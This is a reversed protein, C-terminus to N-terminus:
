HSEVIDLVGQLGVLVSQRRIQERDGLFLERRLVTDAGTMAWGLCVTGVPKDPSGGDPGAVGSIALSVQAHSNRLAGEAMAQVAQESVAGYELLVDSSVGLMERKADNSYTVFGREFWISSGAISTLAQAAWGGTCSEAVALMAQRQQLCQGVRIALASLEAAQEQMTLERDIVM